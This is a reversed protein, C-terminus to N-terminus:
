IVRGRERKKNQWIRMFILKKKNLLIKNTFPLIIGTECLLNRKWFRAKSWINEQKKKTEFNFNFFSFHKKEREKSLIVIKLTNVANIESSLLFTLMIACVCQSSFLMCTRGSASLVGTYKNLDTHLHDHSSHEKCIRVIEHRIKVCSFLINVPTKLHAHDMKNFTNKKRRKKWEDEIFLLIEFM